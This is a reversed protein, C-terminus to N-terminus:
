LIAPRHYLKSLFILNITNCFKCLLKIYTSESGSVCASSLHSTREKASSIRQRSVLMFGIVFNPGLSSKAMGGPKRRNEGSLTIYKVHM